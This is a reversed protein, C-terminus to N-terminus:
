DSSSSDDGVAHEGSDWEPSSASGESSRSTEFTRVQPRDWRVSRQPTASGPRKELPTERPGTERVRARADRRNTMPKRESDASRYRSFLRLSGSAPLSGNHLRSRELRAAEQMHRQHRRKELLIRRHQMSKEEEEQRRKEDSHRKLQLRLRAMESASMAHHDRLASEEDRQEHQHGSQLSSYLGGRAHEMTDPAGTSVHETTRSETHRPESGSRGLDKSRSQFKDFVEDYTDDDFNGSLDGIPSRSDEDPISTDDSRARTLMNNPSQNSSLRERHDRIDDESSTRLAPPEILQRHWSSMPPPHQFARAENGHLFTHEDESALYTPPENSRRHYAGDFGHLDLGELVPSRHIKMPSTGGEHVEPTYHRAGNSGLDNEKIRIDTVCCTYECLLLSSQEDYM